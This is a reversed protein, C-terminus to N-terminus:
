TPDIISTMAEVKLTTGEVAVVRIIMGAPMDM